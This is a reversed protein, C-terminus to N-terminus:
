FVTSLGSQEQLLHLMPRKTKEFPNQQLRMFMSLLKTNKDQFKLKKILLAALTYKDCKLAHFTSTDKPLDTRHRWTAPYARKINRAHNFTLRNTVM